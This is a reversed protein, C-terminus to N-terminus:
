NRKFIRLTERILLLLSYKKKAKDEDYYVDLYANPTKLDFVNGKRLIQEETINLYSDIINDWDRKTLSIFM